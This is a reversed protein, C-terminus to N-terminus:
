VVDAVGAAARQQDGAVVVLGLRQLALERQPPAVPEVHPPQARALGPPQLRRQRRRKPEREVNGVVVRDIRPGQGGCQRSRQTAGACLKALM